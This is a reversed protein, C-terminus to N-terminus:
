RPWRIGFDRAKIKAMLGDPHHWVLGEIPMNVLWLPLAEHTRPADVYRVQGHPVLIYTEFKEPNKGMKPGCLEYTGNPLAAASVLRHMWDEPGDGVPYWGHGNRVAPDDDHHLWQPPASGKQADWDLRKYLKHDRVMCASGDWKRTAVGEGALVWECGPTVESTVRKPSLPNRIFLTPIKRM